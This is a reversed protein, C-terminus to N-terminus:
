SKTNTREYDNEIDLYLRYIGILWPSKWFTIWLSEIYIGTVLTVVIWLVIILICFNIDRMDSNMINISYWMFSLLDLSLTACYRLTIWLSTPCYPECSRDQQSGTEVLNSVGGPTGGRPPWGRKVLGEWYGDDELKTPVSEWQVSDRIKNQYLVGSRSANTVQEKLGEMGDHNIPASAVLTGDIYLDLSDRQLCIDENRRNHWKPPKIKIM